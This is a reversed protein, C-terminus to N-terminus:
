WGPGKRFREEDALAGAEEAGKGGVEEAHSPHGSTEPPAEPAPLNGRDPEDDPRSPAAESPEHEDDTHEVGMTDASGSGRPRSGAFRQGDSALVERLVEIGDWVEVFRTSLPSLGLRIVDPMRFDPIVGREILAACAARA